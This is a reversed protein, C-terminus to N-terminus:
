AGQSRAVVSEGDGGCGTRYRLIHQEATKRRPESTGRVARASAPVTGSTPRWSCLHLALGVPGGLFRPARLKPAPGTTGPTTDLRTVPRLFHRGLLDFRRQRRPRTSLRLSRLVRCARLASTRYLDIEEVLEVAWTAM